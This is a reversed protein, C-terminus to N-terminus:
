QGPLVLPSFADNRDNRFTNRVRRSRLMYPIWIACTVFSRVLEQVDGPDSQAALHPIFQMSFHDLVVFLLGGLYFGIMLKPFHRSRRFFLTLAVIATCMLVLNGAMEFIILPGWMPHYDPSAPNTIQGWIGDAFLPVYLQLFLIAIRIPTVVLGIAVLVLWGGLGEPGRKEEERPVGSIPEDTSSNQPSAYPNEM